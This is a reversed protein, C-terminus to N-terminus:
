IDRVGLNYISYGFLPQKQVTQVYLREAENTPLGRYEVHSSFAKKQWRYPILSILEIKIIDVQWNENKTLSLKTAFQPPLILSLSRGFM